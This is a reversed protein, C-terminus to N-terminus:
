GRRAAYFRFMEDSQRGTIAMGQEIMSGSEILARVTNKGLGHLVIKQGKAGLDDKQKRVAIQDRGIDM